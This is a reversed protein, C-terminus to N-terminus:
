TEEGAGLIIDTHEEQQSEFPDIVEKGKDVRAKQQIETPEIVKNDNSAHDHVNLANVGNDVTPCVAVVSSVWWTLTQKNGNAFIRCFGKDGRM